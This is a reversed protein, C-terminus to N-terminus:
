KDNKFLISIEKYTVELKYWLIVTIMMQSILLNYCAGMVGWLKVFFFCSLISISSVISFIYAYAKHKNYSLLVQYPPINLCVVIPVFSLVKLASVALNINNSSIMLVIEKAFVNIIVSIVVILLLFPVYIKRLFSHLENKDQLIYNLVRPYMAQSFVVLVQWIIMIVKEAISYAGTSSSSLMSGIIITNTYNALSVFAIGLFSAFSEIIYKKVIKFELLIKLKLNFLTFWMMIIGSAANSFGYLLTVYKYQEPKEIITFILLLLIIKSIFNATTIYGLKEIGQFLWMQSLVQGILYLVIGLISVKDLLINGLIYIALIGICLVIFIIIKTFIVTSFILSLKDNNNKEISSLRTAYISFGYDICTSLLFSISLSYSVIGYNNVGVKNVLFPFTIILILFNTGQNILVFFFNKLFQNSIIRRLQYRIFIKVINM